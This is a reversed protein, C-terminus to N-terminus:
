EPYFKGDNLIKIATELVNIDEKMQKASFSEKEGNECLKIYNKKISRLLEQTEKFKEM